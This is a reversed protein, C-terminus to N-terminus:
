GDRKEREEQEPQEIDLCPWHSARREEGIREMSDQDETSRRRGDGTCNYTRQREHHFALPGQPDQQADEESGKHKIPRDAFECAVLRRRPVVGLGNGLLKEGGLGGGAQRFFVESVM